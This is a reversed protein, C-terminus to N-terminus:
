FTCNDIKTRLRQVEQILMTVMRAYDISVPKGDLDLNVFQPATEYLEEAIMGVELEGTEIRNYRRVKIHDIANTMDPADVINRKFRASSTSPGIQGSANYVMATGTTSVLTTPVFISNDVTNVVASGISIRGAAAGTSVDANAGLLVNDTGAAVTVGAQRGLATNRSANSGTGSVTAGLARYGVATNATNIQLIELAREGVGVNEIGSTLAQLARSGLAAAPVNANQLAAYGFATADNATTLTQLTDNGFATLRLGSTIAAGSRDGSTTNGSSATTTQARALHYSRQTSMFTYTPCFIIM